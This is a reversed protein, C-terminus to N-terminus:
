IETIKLQKFLKLKKKKNKKKILLVVSFSSKLIYSKPVMLFQQITFCVAQLTAGRLSSYSM